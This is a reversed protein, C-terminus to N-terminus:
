DLGYLRRFTKRLRDLARERRKRLTAGSVSAAEDWFTAILVERDLESLEGLAAMAAATLDRQLFEEEAHPGACSPMADAHSERRRDRRRALTRCEWGAIALAWPMAPRTKDFDSARELIKHMAEQGADAADAENRLLSLCLKQIPGWLLEFVRTFAVRDGEALRAMLADLESVTRVSM